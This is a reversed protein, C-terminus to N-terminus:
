RRVNDWLRLGPIKTFHTDFTVLVSGMEVAHAGIWIDNVPLPKGIRKLTNKIKKM